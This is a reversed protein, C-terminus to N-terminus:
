LNNIQLGYKQPSNAAIVGAQQTIDEKQAIFCPLTNATIYKKLFQNKV